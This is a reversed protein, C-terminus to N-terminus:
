DFSGSRFGELDLTVYNFGCDKMKSVLGQKKSLNAMVVPFAERPVEIRAIKDHIRVRGSDIGVEKLCQEAAEAQKLKEITLQTGYPFRSALCANSPKSWTRIGLKRSEERIAQKTFGCEYLPSCIGLEDAAKAGPRYVSADDLNKGDMVISFGNKEAERRIRQMLNKKCYYCRMKDNNKFEEIEFVDIELIRYDADIENLLEIAESLDSEAMMAGSCLVALVNDKGLTSRAVSLLFNSDVGGSYAVAAKKYKKLQEKLKELEEM